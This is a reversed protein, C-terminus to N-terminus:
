TGPCRVGRIAGCNEAMGAPSDPLLVMGSEILAVQRDVEQVSLGFGNLSQPRTM